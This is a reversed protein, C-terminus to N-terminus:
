EKTSFTNKVVEEDFFGKGNSSESSWSNVIIDFECTKDNSTIGTSDLKVVFVFDAFESSELHSQYNLDNFGGLYVQDWNNFIRFSLADCLGVDGPKKEVRMSYILDSEGTNKLRLAKVEYGLPAVGKVDFLSDVSSNDSPNFETVDLTGASFKNDVVVGRDNLDADTSQTISLGFVFIFFFIKFVFKVFQKM